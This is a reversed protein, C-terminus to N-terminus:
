CCLCSKKQQKKTVLGADRTRLTGTMERNAGGSYPSVVGSAAYAPQTSPDSVFQFGGPIGITFTTPEASPQMMLPQEGLGGQLGLPQMPQLQPQMLTPQAGLGQFGIQPMQLGFGGAPQFQANQDM